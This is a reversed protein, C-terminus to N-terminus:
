DIEKRVIKGIKSHKNAWLKEFTEIMEKENLPIMSDMTEKMADRCSQQVRDHNENHLRVIYEATTRDLAGADVVSYEYKNDSEPNTYYIPEIPVIIRCWCEPGSFCETAKWPVLFSYERAQEFNM